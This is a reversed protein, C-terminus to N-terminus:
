RISFASTRIRDVDEMRTAAELVAGQMAALSPVAAALPVALASVVEAAASHVTAVEVLAEAAVAVEVSVEAAVAAEVSAEVVTAAEVSAGAAVAAETHHPLPPQHQHRAARLAATVEWPTPAATAIITEQVATATITEPEEMAITTAPIMSPLAHLVTAAEEWDTTEATTAM